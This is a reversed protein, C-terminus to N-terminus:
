RGSRAGCLSCGHAVLVTDFSDFRPRPAHQPTADVQSKAINELLEDDGPLCFASPDDWTKGQENIPSQEPNADVPTDAFVAAFEDFQDPIASPVDRRSVTADYM